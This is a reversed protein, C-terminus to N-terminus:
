LKREIIDIMEGITRPFVTHIDHTDVGFEDELVALVALKSFEDIIKLEDFTTEPRIAEVNAVAVERINTIVRQAISEQAM